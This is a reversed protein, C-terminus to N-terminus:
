GLLCLPRPASVVSEGLVACTGTGSTQSHAKMRLPLTATWAGLSLSALAASVGCAGVCGFGNAM